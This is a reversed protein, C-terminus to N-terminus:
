ANTQEPRNLISETLQKCVQSSFLYISKGTCDVNELSEEIQGLLIDRGWKNSVYASIILNDNSTAVSPCM